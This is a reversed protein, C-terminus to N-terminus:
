HNMESDKWHMYLIKTKYMCHDLLWYLELESVITTSFRWSRNMFWCSYNVVDYILCNCVTSGVHMVYPCDDSNLKVDWKLQWKLMSFVCMYVYFLKLDMSRVIRFTFGFFITHNCLFFSWRFISIDMKHSLSGFLPVFLFLLCILAISELM